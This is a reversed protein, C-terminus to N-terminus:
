DIRIIHECCPCEIVHACETYNGYRTIGDSCTFPGTMNRIEGKVDEKKNYVLISNCYPYTIDVELGNKKVRM